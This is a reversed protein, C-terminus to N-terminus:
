LDSSLALRTPAIRGFGSCFLNTCVNEADMESLSKLYSTNKKRFTRLRYKLFSSIVISCSCM